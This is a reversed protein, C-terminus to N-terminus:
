IEEVHCYTGNIRFMWQEAVRQAQKRSAYYGWDCAIQEMRENYILLNYGRLLSKM